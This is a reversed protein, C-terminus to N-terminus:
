TRTDTRDRPVFAGTKEDRVLDVTDDTEPPRRGPGTSQTQAERKADRSRKTEDLNSRTEQLRNYLRYGYLVAGIIGILALLKSLSFM